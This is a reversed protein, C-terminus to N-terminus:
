AFPYVTYVTCHVHQPQRFPVSNELLSIIFKNVFSIKRKREEEEWRKFIVPHQLRFDLSPMPLTLADLVLIHVNQKDTLKALGYAFIHHRLRNGNSEFAVSFFCWCFFPRIYDMHKSTSSLSHQLSSLLYPSSKLLRDNTANWECIM